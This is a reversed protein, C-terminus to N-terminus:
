QGRRVLRNFSEPDIMCTEYAQSETRRFAASDLISHNRNAVRWALSACERQIGQTGAGAYAGMVVALGTGLVLAGLFAVVSKMLPNM